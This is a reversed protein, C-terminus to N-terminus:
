PPSESHEVPSQKTNLPFTLINNKNILKLASLAAKPEGFKTATIMMFTLLSVVSFILSLIGFLLYVGQTKVLATGLIGFVNTSVYFTISLILMHWDRKYVYWKTNFETNNKIVKGTKSDLQYYRQFKLYYTITELTKEYQSLQIFEKITLTKGFCNSLITQIYLSQGENISSYNFEGLDKLSNTIDRNKTLRLELIKTLNKNIWKVPYLVFPLVLLSLSPHEVLQQSFIKLLENM